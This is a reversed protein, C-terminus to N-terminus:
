SMDNLWGSCDIVHDTFGKFSYQKFKGHFVHYMEQINCGPDCHRYIGYQIMYIWDFVYFFYM